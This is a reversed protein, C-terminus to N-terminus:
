AAAFEVIVQACWADLRDETLERQCDEDLALGVFHRGDATLAKSADFEYGENPWHGIVTAGRAVMKDHLMGMADLFWEAYGYQDGLGIFAVTKGQMDLSDLEQWIEFWDEQVEGYDWTPIAFILQGFAEITGPACDKVDFLQLEDQGFYDQVKAAIDGTNGTTSGYFLAISM